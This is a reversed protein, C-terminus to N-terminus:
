WTGYKKHLLVLGPGVNRNSISANAFTQNALSIRIRSVTTPAGEGIRQERLYSKIAAVIQVRESSTPQRYAYSSAATAAVAIMVLTMVILLRKASTMPHVVPEQQVLQTRRTAAFAAPLWFRHPHSRGRM